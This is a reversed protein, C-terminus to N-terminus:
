PNIKYISKIFQDLCNGEEAAKHLATVEEDNALNVNAHKEILLEIVEENGSRFLLHKILKSCILDPNTFRGSSIAFLLPSNGDSDTINVDAGGSILFDVM